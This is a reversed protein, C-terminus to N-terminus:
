PIWYPHCFLISAQKNKKREIYYYHLVGVHLHWLKNLKNNQMGVLWVYARSGWESNENTAKL